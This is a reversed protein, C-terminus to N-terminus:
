TRCVSCQRKKVDLSEHCKECTCQHGSQQLAYVGPCNLCFLMERFIKITENSGNRFELVHEDEVDGEFALADLARQARWFTKM